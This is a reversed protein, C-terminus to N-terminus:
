NPILYGTYTALSEKVKEISYNSEVEICQTKVKVSIRDRGACRVSKGGLICYDM